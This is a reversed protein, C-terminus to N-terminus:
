TYVTHKGYNEVLSKIVKEAVLMNREKSIYIGLVSKYRTEICIWLWFHQSGVQIINEDEIIFALVRVNTSIAHVLGKFGTGYLFIVEKIM